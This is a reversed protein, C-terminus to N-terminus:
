RGRSPRPRLVDDLEGAGPQAHGDSIRVTIIVGIMIASIQSASTETGRDHRSPAIASPTLGSRAISATVSRATRGAITAAATSAVARASPSAIMIEITEPARENAGLGISPTTTGTRAAACARRPSRRSGRLVDARRREARRQVRERQQQQERREHQRDGAVQDLQRQALVLHASSCAAGAGDRRRPGRAICLRGRGASRATSSASSAVPEREDGGPQRPEPQAQDGGRDDDVHAIAADLVQPGVQEEATGGHAGGLASRAAEQVRQEAGRQQRDDADHERHRQRDGAGHPYGLVSARRPQRPDDLRADLDDGARGVDHDRDEAQRDELQVESAGNENLAEPPPTKPLDNMAAPAIIDSIASGGSKVAVRSPSCATGACMRSAAKASPLVRM